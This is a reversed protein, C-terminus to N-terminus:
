KAQVNMSATGKGQLGEYAIRAEWTGPMEINVQARYKGPTETTTLEARNNMEAMAGMAPMHFVLSAAGVDVSEGSADAFSLFLSNDGSKIDGTSSALTIKLDGAKTSKIEKEGGTTKANCALAIFLAIAIAVALAAKSTTTLM